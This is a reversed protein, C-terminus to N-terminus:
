PMTSLRVTTDLVHTLEQSNIMLGLGHFSSGYVSRVIILVIVHCLPHGFFSLSLSLKNLFPLGLASYVFM